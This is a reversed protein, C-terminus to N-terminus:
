AVKSMHKPVRGRRVVCTVAMGIPIGLKTVRHHLTHYNIGHEEALAKLSKRGRGADFFLTCRLDRDFAAHCKRCLRLWDTRERLYRGSKNAWDFNPAENTGCKECRKPTGFHKNIWGHKSKYHAADGKWGPHDEGSPM